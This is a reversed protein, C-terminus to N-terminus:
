FSVARLPPEEDSGPLSRQQRANKRDMHAAAFAAADEKDVRYYESIRGSREATARSRPGLLARVDSEDM